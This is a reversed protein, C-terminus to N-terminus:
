AGLWIKLVAFVILAWSLFAVIKNLVLLAGGGFYDMIVEDFELKCYWVAGTAFILLSIAGFPSDLWNLIGDARGPIASALGWLVFPLCLISVWGTMGKQRHHGTGTGAM